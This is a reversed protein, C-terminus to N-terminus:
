RNRMCSFALDHTEGYVRVCSLVKRSWSKGISIVRNTDDGTEHQYSDLIGTDTFESTPYLVPYIAAEVGRMVIFLDYSTINVSVDEAVRAQHLQWFYRYFTNREMLFRYAAKSGPQPCPRRRCSLLLFWARSIGVKKYNFHHAAGYSEKQVATKLQIISLARSEEVSLDLM